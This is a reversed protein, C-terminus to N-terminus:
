GECCAGVGESPDLNGVLVSCETGSAPCYKRGPEM